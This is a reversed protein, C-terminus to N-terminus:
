QMGELLYNHIDTTKIEWDCSVSQYKSTLFCSGVVQSRCSIYTKCFCLCILPITFFKGTVSVLLFCSYTYEYRVFCGEFCFKYSSVFIAAEYQYPSCYLLCCSNYMWWISCGIEQFLCSLMFCLNIGVFYYHTSNM